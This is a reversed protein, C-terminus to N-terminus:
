TRPAPQDVTLAWVLAGLWGLVTWGLFPNLVLIAAANQKRRQFAVVSPLLYLGLGLVLVGVAVLAELGSPLFGM